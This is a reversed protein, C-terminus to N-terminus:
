LSFTTTWFSPETTPLYTLSVLVAYMALGSPTAGENKRRGFLFTAHPTLVPLEKKRNNKYEEFDERSMMGQKVVMNNQIVSVLVSGETKLPEECRVVLECPCGSRDEKVSCAWPLLLAIFCLIKRM